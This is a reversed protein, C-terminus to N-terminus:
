IHILSLFLSTVTVILSNQFYLLFDGQKMVTEYGILSFTDANPLSLPSRFIAKRSKVSNILILIVPFLAITAYTLLIAHSALSRSVSRTAMSM